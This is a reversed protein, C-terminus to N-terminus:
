GVRRAKPIRITLLIEDETDQRGCAADVGASRMLSLSRDLSNLFLRVDRLVFGGLERRQPTRPALLSDIYQETKAVTWEGQAILGIVRLREAEDPLKLLARAHRETLNNDLVFQRQDATLQLLRLKNAFTPQAMGLRKAAEAQTCDWLVMVDRLGQAQEFPNLDARQINELLGLAATRDDAYSCLIAPITTMKALQCARLRREGAVLEYGEAAKRVSIPQLLGNERISQALGALEQEEFTRRAQFPSPHIQDIPLFYIKGASKKREFM